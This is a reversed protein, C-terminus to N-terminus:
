LLCEIFVTRNKGGNEKEGERESFEPREKVKIVKSQCLKRGGQWLGKKGGLLLRNLIQTFFGLLHREGNKKRLRGVARSPLSVGGCHSANCKNGRDGRKGRKVKNKQGGDRARNFLTRVLIIKEEVRTNIVESLHKAM